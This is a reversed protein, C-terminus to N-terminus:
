LALEAGLRPALGRRWRDAAAEVRGGALPPAIAAARRLEAVDRLLHQGAHDATRLISEIRLFSAAMSTAVTAVTTNAAGTSAPCWRWWSSDARLPEAM